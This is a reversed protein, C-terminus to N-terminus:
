TYHTFCLSLFMSKKPWYFTLWLVSSMAVGVLPGTGQWRLAKQSRFHGVLAGWRPYHPSQLLSIQSLPSHNCPHITLSPGGLFYSWLFPPFSPEQATMLMRACVTYVACCLPPLLLRSHQQSILYSGKAGGMFCLLAISSHSPKLPSHVKLCCM